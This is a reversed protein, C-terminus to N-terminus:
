GRKFIPLVGFEFSNQWEGDSKKSEAIAAWADDKTDFLSAGRDRLLKDPFPCQDNGYALTEYQEGSGRKKSIIVAYGILDNNM